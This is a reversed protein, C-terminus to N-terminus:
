EAIYEQVLEEDGPGLMAYVRKQATLVTPWATLVGGQGKVGCFARKYHASAARHSEHSVLMLPPLVATAAYEEIRTGRAFCRTRRQLPLFGWDSITLTVHVPEELAMEWIALRLEAPLRAFKHFTGQRAVFAERDLRKKEEATRKRGEYDAVSASSTWLSLDEEEAREALTRPGSPRPDGLIYCRAPRTPTLACGPGGKQSFYRPNTVTRTRWMEDTFTYGTREPPNPTNLSVSSVEKCRTMTAM